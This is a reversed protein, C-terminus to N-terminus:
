TASNSNQSCSGVAALEDSFYSTWLSPVQVKGDAGTFQIAQEQALGITFLASPRSSASLTGFDFAFGFVPYDDNIARYDTDNSNDLDGSNIFQGRVTNDAGSQYTLTRVNETSWYWYGWDAQQNTETFALQTQKWVKHYAIDGTTGYEWQAVQSHDGAVWELSMDASLDCPHTPVMYYMGASIDSYLEVKHSDGDLSQVSVDLYMMTLSQRKFDEPTLPSLFTVNMEVKGAVSLIFSSRTSTYEFSTQDAVGGTGTPAGLWTYSTGDVRIIGTWGTVQGSYM